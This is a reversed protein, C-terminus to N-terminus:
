PRPVLRLTTSRADPSTIHDLISEAYRRYKDRYAADLRDEVDHDADQFAVDREASGAQVRGEHRAQTGRYWTATPGNVSRVYLDDGDRVVWITTPNRLTGDPRRAAIRLEQASGIGALEENTWGTM